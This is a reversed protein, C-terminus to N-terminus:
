AIAKKTIPRGRKQAAQAPAGVTFQAQHEQWYNAFDKDGTILMNFSEAIVHAESSPNSPSLYHGYAEIKAAVDARLKIKVETFPTKDEPQIKPM